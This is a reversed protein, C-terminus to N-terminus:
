RKLKLRTIGALYTVNIVVTDGALVNCPPDVVYVVQNIHSDREGTSLPEQLTSLQYQYWLPLANICGDKAVSVTIDETRCSDLTM